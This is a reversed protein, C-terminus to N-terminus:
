KRVLPENQSKHTVCHGRGRVREVQMKVTSSLAQGMARM